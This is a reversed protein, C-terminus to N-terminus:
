PALFSSDGYSLFRYKHELASSYVNKWDDGIFGAILMLLTSNPMHFNTVLGSCIKFEYGPVIIVETQGLIMDTKRRDMLDLVAKLAEKKTPLDSENKYPQLKNVHFEEDGELIAAGFWYMSELTRMSTTGVAIVQDNDLIDNVTKKNVLVQENHMPHNGVSTKIPQFTGASVHLTVESLVCKKALKRIIDETFHLGATPAAVAGNIKSYVTQYREQDSDVPDRDIYPPLPTQGLEHILESFTMEGNWSFKVNNEELRTVSVKLDGITQLLTSKEKWKKANGIMCNWICTENSQMVEEMVTSPSVPELLFIEIKAGSEKYFLIRAPIVKTNNFVLLSRDPILEPISTFSHHEISGRKYYLLKSASRDELPFKAIRNEPLDYNFSSPHIDEVRM